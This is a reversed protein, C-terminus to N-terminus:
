SQRKIYVNGNLTEFRFVKGGKGLRVATSSNLKYVTSSGKKEQVKNTTAPLVQASPFDTFMDGNMSKFRLDASLDPQYTVKIDGNITYYSSEGAPNSKYTVTVDGNVTHAYTKGMANTIRIEENVNNIRLDGRVNDITIIGNNVTSIVLNIGEPVKVTFDVNFEYDIDRDNNYHKRPRSDFPQAIFAFISDSKQEFGLQFEKKGTELEEGNDASITKDMELIVKNGTSNGALKVSGSINYIFLTADTANGKLTFERNLHERFEHGEAKIISCLIGTGLLLTIMLKKM